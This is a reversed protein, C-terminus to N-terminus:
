KEKQSCNISGFRQIYLVTEPQLHQPHQHPVLYVPVVVLNGGRHSLLEGTTVVHVEQLDTRVALLCRGKLGSDTRNRNSLFYKGTGILSLTSFEFKEIHKKLSFTGQKM